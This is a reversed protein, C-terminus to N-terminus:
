PSIRESTPNQAAVLRSPDGSARLPKPAGTLIEIEMTSLKAFVRGTGSLPWWEYLFIELPRWMAVWGAILLSEAFVREITGHTAILLERLLLCAGLFTVGIALATRGQRLLLRLDRAATQRRYEFYNRISAALETAAPTPPHEPPLYLMLRFPEHAPLERAAGVIYDEADADLDKEHFPSPDLTNFLQEVGTLTIEILNVGDIRRYRSKQATM